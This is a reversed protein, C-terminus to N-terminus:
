IPALKWIDRYFSLCVMNIKMNLVLCLWIVLKSFESIVVSGGVDLLINSYLKGAFNSELASRFQQPVCVCCLPTSHSVHKYTALPCRQVSTTCEVM